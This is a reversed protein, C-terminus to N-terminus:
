FLRTDDRALIRVDPEPTFGPTNLRNSAGSEVDVRILDM